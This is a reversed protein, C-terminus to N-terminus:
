PQASIVTYTYSAEDASGIGSVTVTYSVDPGSGTVVGTPQWVISKDGYGGNTYVITLPVNGNPGTMTVQASSFSAGPIGFSWYGPMIPRPMYGEPPYAIFEPIQTNGGALGMVGVATYTSTSGYAFETKTSHLLWRRHGASTTWADKMLGDIAYTGNMGMALNSQGAGLEGLTTYCSWSSPPDHDLTNNAHMMLATQQYKATQSDDWTCNDNLGVLRRYYNIRQLVLARANQSVTGPDCASTSGTWGVNSMSAGFSESYDQMVLDRASLASTPSSPSPESVEEKKCAAFTLATALALTTRIRM